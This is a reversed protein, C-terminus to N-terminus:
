SRRISSTASRSSTRSNIRYRRASRARPARFEWISPASRHQKLVRSVFDSTEQPIEEESVTRDLDLVVLSLRPEDAMDRDEEPFRYVRFAADGILDSLTSKAYESGLQRDIEPAKAHSGAIDSEIVSLYVSPHGTHKVLEGRVAATGLSVSGSKILAENDKANYLTAIVDALFRPM